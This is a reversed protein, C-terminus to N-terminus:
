ELPLSHIRSLAETALRDSKIRVNIGKRCVGQVKELAEVALLLAEAIAPFCNALRCMFVIDARRDDDTLVDPQPVLKSREEQLEKVVGIIDKPTM